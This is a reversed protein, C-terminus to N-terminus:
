LQCKCNYMHGHFANVTLVLHHDAAKNHILSTAVTKVLSCGIDSGIAQNHGFMNVLKNITALPYKADSHRMEAITQVMRHRCVSLFIGTQKFISVTNK